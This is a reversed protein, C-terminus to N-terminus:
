WPKETLRISHTLANIDLSYQKTTDFMIGRAMVVNRVTNWYSAVSDLDSTSYTSQNHRIVDFEEDDLSIYIPKPEVKKKTFISM